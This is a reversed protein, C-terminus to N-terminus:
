EYTLDLANTYHIFWKVAEADSGFDIGEGANERCWIAIAKELKAIRLGAAMTGHVAVYDVASKELESLNSMDQGM